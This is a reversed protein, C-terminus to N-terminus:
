NTQKNTQTKSPTQCKDHLSTDSLLKKFDSWFRIDFSSHPNSGSGFTQYM